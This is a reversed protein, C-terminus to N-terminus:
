LSRMQFESSYNGCGFVWKVVGCSGVGGRETIAM